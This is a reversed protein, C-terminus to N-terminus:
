KKTAKIDKMSVEQPKGGLALRENMRRSIETEIMADHAELAVSEPTEKVKIKWGKAFAFVIELECNYSSAITKVSVGALLDRKLQVVQRKNVGHRARM